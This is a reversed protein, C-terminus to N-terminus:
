DEQATLNLVTLFWPARIADTPTFTREKYGVAKRKRVLTGTEVLIDLYHSLNNGVFGPLARRIETTSAAGKELLYRLVSRRIGHNLARVLDSASGRSATTPLVLKEVARLASQDEESCKKKLQNGM